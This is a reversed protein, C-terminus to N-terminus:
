KTVRLMPSSVTGALRSKAHLMIGLVARPSTTEWLVGDSPVDCGPENQMIDDSTEIVSM